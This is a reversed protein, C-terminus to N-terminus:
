NDKQEKGTLPKKFKQAVFSHMVTQVVLVCIPIQSFSATQNM